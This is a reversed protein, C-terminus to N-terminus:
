PRKNRTVIWNVLGVILSIGLVALPLFFWVLLATSM